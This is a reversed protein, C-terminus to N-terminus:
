RRITKTFNSCFWFYNVENRRRRYGIIIRQPRVEVKHIHFVDNYRVRITLVRIYLTHTHLRLLYVNTIQVCLPFALYWVCCLGYFMYFYITRGVTFLRVFVFYHDECRECYEIIFEQATFKARSTNGVWIWSWIFMITSVQIVKRKAGITHQVIINDSYVRVCGALKLGVENFM